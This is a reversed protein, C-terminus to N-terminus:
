QQVIIRPDLVPCEGSVVYFEYTNYPTAPDIRLAITGERGDKSKFPQRKFPDFYVEFEGAGKPEAVFEVVDSKERSVKVCDKDASGIFHTCNRKSVDMTVERPCKGDLHITFTYPGVASAGPGACGAAAILLGVALAARTAQRAAANPPTTPTTM